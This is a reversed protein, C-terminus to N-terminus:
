LVKHAGAHELRAQREVLVAANSHLRDTLQDAEQLELSTKPDVTKLTVKWANGEADVALVERVMEIEFSLSSRGSFLHASLIYEERGM